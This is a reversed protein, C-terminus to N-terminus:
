DPAVAVPKGCDADYASAYPRIWCRGMGAVIASNIRDPTQRSAALRAAAADFGPRDKVLFAWTATVYSNWDLDDTNGAPVRTGAMLRAAEREAGLLALGQAMHWVMIRQQGDTRVPGNLLYHETAETAEKTCGRESLARFSSPLTGKQDFDDFSLTANAQKGAETLACNSGAAFAASSSFGAILLAIFKM